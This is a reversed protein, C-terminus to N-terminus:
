IHGDKQVEGKALCIVRKKQEQVLAHDHTAIFVTTGMANCQQFVKMVDRSLGPDLNGTPEDAIIVEPQGILARGIALRQKEGGSLQDPYFNEKDLIGLDQLMKNKKEIIVARKEGLVLSGTRYGAEIGALEFGLDLGGAGSFLSNVLFRGEEKHIAPYSDKKEGHSPTHELIKADLVARLKSDHNARLGAKDIVRQTLERSSFTEGVIIDFRTYDDLATESEHNLQAETYTVGDDRSNRRAELVEPPLEIRIAVGGTDVVSDMENVFRADTVFLFDVSQEAAYTKFLNVWYDADAARRIETGLYQLSQRIGVSRSYGNLTPDALIEPYGTGIFEDVQHLPINFTSSIEVLLDEYTVGAETRERVFIIIETLEAKLPTAFSTEALTYGLRTLEIALKESLYNKGSAIKGSVGVLVSM